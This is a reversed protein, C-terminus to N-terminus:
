VAILHPVQTSNPQKNKAFLTLLDQCMEGYMESMIMLDADFKQGKTELEDKLEIIEEKALHISKLKLEETVVFNIRDQWCMALQIVECGDNLLSQISSAFLDQQQARIIRTEQRADQLVCSKEISFISPYDRKKLWSTLISAPKTIDLVAINEGIVKKFLSIFMETKANSHTDLILWQKRTDIYAYVKSLKTFARPLLTYVVEDKMSLKERQRVRRGENAEVLKIKDKLTQNVVTAPMIKEEIQLCIMLCGNIGRVLPAEEEDLPSVFGISQPMSPLCPKFALPALKEALATANSSINETLQFLQIQKFWM